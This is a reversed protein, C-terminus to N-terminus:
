YTPSSDAETDLLWKTFLGFAYWFATYWPPLGFNGRAIQYVATGVLSFFLLTPLDLENGSAQRVAANAGQFSRQIRKAPPVVQEQPAALEFLKTEKAADAVARLTCRDGQCLVSATIPNVQIEARPFRKSLTAEVKQFYAADSRKGPIRVRVRGQICHVCRGSPLDM